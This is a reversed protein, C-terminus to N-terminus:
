VPIAVTRKLLMLIQFKKLDLLLHRVWKADDCVITVSLFCITLKLPVRPLPITRDIQSQEDTQRALAYLFIDVYNLPNMHTHDPVYPYANVSIAVQNLWKLCKLLRTRSNQGLIKKAFWISQEPGHSFGVSCIKSILKPIKAPTGQLWAQKVRYHRTNAFPM